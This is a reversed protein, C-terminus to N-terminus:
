RGPEDILEQAVLRGRRVTLVAQQEALSRDPIVV